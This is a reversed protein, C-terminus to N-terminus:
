TKKELLDAFWKKTVDKVAEEYILFPTKDTISLLSEREKIEFDFDEFQAPSHSFLHKVLLSQQLICLVASKNVSLFDKDSQRLNEGGLLQFSNANVDFSAGAEIMRDLLQTLSESQKERLTEPEIRGYDTAALTDSFFIESAQTSAIM